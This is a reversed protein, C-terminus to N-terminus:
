RGRMVRGCIYTLSYKRALGLAASQDPAIARPAPSACSGTGSSYEISHSVQAKALLSCRPRTVAFGVSSHVTCCARLRSSRNSSMLSRSRSRPDLRMGQDGHRAGARGLVAPLGFGRRTGNTLRGAVRKSRLPCTLGSCAARAARGHGDACLRRDRAGSAGWPRRGSIHVRTIHVRARAGTGGIGRVAVYLGTCSGSGAPLPSGAAPHGPAPVSSAPVV